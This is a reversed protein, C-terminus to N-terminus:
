RNFSLFWRSSQSCHVVRDLQPDIGSGVQRHFDALRAPLSPQFYSSRVFSKRPIDREIRFLELGVNRGIVGIDGRGGVRLLEGLDGVRQPEEGLQAAAM